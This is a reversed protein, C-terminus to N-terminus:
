ELPLPHQVSLFWAQPSKAQPEFLRTTRGPFESRAESIKLKRFREIRKRALCEEPQQCVCGFLRWVRDWSFSERGSCPLVSAFAQGSDVWDFMDHQHTIEHQVPTTFAKAEESREQRATPRQVPGVRQARSIVMGRTDLLILDQACIMRGPRSRPEYPDRCEGSRMRSDVKSNRCGCSVSFAM